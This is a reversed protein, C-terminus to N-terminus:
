QIIVIFPLLYKWSFFIKDKRGIMIRQEINVIRMTPIMMSHKELVQILIHSQRMRHFVYELVSVGNNKYSTSSSLQTHTKDLIKMSLADFDNPGSTPKGFWNEIATCLKIQEPSNNM